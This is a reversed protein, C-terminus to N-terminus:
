NEYLKIAGPDRWEWKLGNSEALKEVMPHIWPYGNDYQGYFNCFETGNDNHVILTGDVESVYKNDCPIDMEVYETGVKRFGKTVIKALEAKLKNVNM